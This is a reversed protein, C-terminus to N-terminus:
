GRLPAAPQTTLRPSRAAITALLDASVPRWERTLHRWTLRFPVFGAAVGRQDKRRDEDMTLRQEHWTRSDLEIWVRQEPFLADPSVVLDPALRLTANRRYPPLNPLKRLLTFFLDEMESRTRGIGPDDRQAHLAESLARTGHHGPNAVLIADLDRLRFANNALGQNLAIQLANPQLETSMDLLAQAATTVPLGRRQRREATGRHVIVGRHHRRHKPALVHVDGSYPRVAWLQGASHSAILSDEGVALHAAWLRGYPDLDPTGLAYVGRHYRHIHGARAAWSVQNRSLGADRLQDLSVARGQRKAARAVQM